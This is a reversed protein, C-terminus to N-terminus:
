SRRCKKAVRQTSLPTSMGVTLRIKVDCGAESDGNQYRTPRTFFQFIVDPRKTNDVNAASFILVGAFLCKETEVYNRM